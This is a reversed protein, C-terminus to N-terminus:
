PLVGRLDCVIVDAREPLEVRTSLDQIFEIRDALGSDRAAARALHISTGPDVAYVKRAGLRCAILAMMGAGTGIDLVVCGPRVARELAAAYADMRVSDAIMAAHGRLNYTEAM